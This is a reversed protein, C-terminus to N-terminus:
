IIENKRIFSDWSEFQIKRNSEKELRHRKKSELADNTTYGGIVIGRYKIEKNPDVHLFGNDGLLSNYVQEGNEVRQRIEHANRRFFEYNSEIFDFRELIQERCKNITQSTTGDTNLYSFNAGKVEILIIEMRSRDTFIVFDVSGQNVQFESFVIYENDIASHVYAKALIHLNDKLYRQIVQENERNEVLNKLETM